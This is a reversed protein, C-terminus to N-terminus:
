EIVFLPQGFEVASGNEVLIDRIVGSKEAKIENMVKMAEVICVVTDPTVKDGVKVFPAAEPSPARYLTGVLPSDITVRKATDAAPAAAAPAPAAAPAAVPAPAPAIMSVPASIVAASGRKIELTFGERELKLEALDNAAVIEAIAKIEDIKM